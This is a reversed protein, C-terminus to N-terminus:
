QSPESLDVRKTITIDPLVNITDKYPKLYPNILYIKHKGATLTINKLRPTEGIYKDDVFVMAWPYTIVQLTGTYLEAQQNPRLGSNKEPVNNYHNKAGRSQTVPLVSRETSKNTSYRNSQKIRKPVAPTQKNTQINEKHTVTETQTTQNSLISVPTEGYEERAIILTLIFIIILEMTNLIWRAYKKHKLKKILELADAHEDGTELMINIVSLAKEFNNSKIYASADAYRAANHRKLLDQETQLPSNIFLRFVNYPDSTFRTIGNYLTRSLESSDRYRDEPMPSLCTDVINEIWDDIGSVLTYIPKYHIKSINHLISMTNDAYFPSVGTILWYILSGLSFVDSASSINNSNIHEPSMFEPSGIATGSMTIHTDTLIHALGFDTIKIEGDSSILLNEPKIDRHVIGISHAHGVADCVIFAMILAVELPIKKGEKLLTDHMHRFDHGQIYELVLFPVGEHEGIDYLSVISKYHLRAIIRAENIFRRILTNDSIFHSYLIKIAVERKLVTDIGIYVIAMGGRGLEKKLLYRNAILQGKGTDMVFLKTSIEGPIM